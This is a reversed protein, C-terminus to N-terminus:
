KCNGWDASSSGAPGGGNFRVCKGQSPLVVPGAYYEHNGRDSKTPGGQVELTVWLPSAVGVSESKLAVACTNKTASNFLQYVTGGRFPLQRQV